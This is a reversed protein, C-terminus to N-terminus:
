LCDINFWLLTYLPIIYIISKWSVEHGVMAATAEGHFVQESPWSTLNGWKNEAPRGPSADISQLSVPFWTSGLAFYLTYIYIFLILYIIIIHYKPAKQGPERRASRPNERSVASWRTCSEVATQSLTAQRGFGTRGDFDGYSDEEEPLTSLKAAAVQYHTCIM